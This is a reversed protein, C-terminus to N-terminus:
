LSSFKSRAGPVDRERFFEVDLATAAGIAFNAGQRFGGSDAPSPSAFPPGLREAARVIIRPIVSSSGLISKALDFLADDYTGIFDIILRGFFSRGYPPRKVPSLVSYWAFVAPSNGTDAFSDGFSFISRPFASSSAARTPSALVVDLLLVASSPLLRGIRMKGTSMHWEGAGGEKQNQV